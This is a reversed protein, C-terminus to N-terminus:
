VDLVVGARWTNGDREFLLGHYTAAKVLPEFPAHRGVLRAEISTAELRLEEAREAIFGETDALFILEQLWDVLLSARDSEELAIDHEVAASSEDDLAVLEAFAALADTFVQEESDAEIALEIEATHGRWEYM